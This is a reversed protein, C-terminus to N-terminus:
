LGEVQWGKASAELLFDGNGCGLELLLSSSNPPPGITEVYLAATARKLRAAREPDGLFYTATYIQALVDDSPQPHVFELGCTGCRYIQLGKIGFASSGANNCVPCTSM